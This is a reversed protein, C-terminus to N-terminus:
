SKVDFIWTAHVICNKKLIKKIQLKREGGGDFYLSYLLEGNEDKVYCYGPKPSQISKLKMELQGSSALMLLKKPIEILEYHWKIPGKKLARLTFIRDYNDLHKLFSQLLFSLDDPNDGWKGKGLEMFKSIWLQESKINKDAQTKLSINVGNVVIDHGPNGKPSLEAKTNGLLLTNVLAYEFKDKTFPEASFSHHIVLADGFQNLAEINLFSDDLLKYTHSHEFASLVKSTWYLQGNTLSPIKGVLDKIKQEREKEM